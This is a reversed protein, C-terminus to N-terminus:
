KRCKQKPNAKLYDNIFEDVFSEVKARAQKLNWSIDDAVYGREWIIGVARLIPDEEILVDRRVSISVSVVSPEKEEAWILLNIIIYLEPWRTVCTIEQELFVKVGNQRLQLEVDSRLAQETLGYKNAEPGLQAVHVFVGPLGALNRANGIDKRSEM